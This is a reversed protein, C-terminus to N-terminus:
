RGMVRKLFKVPLYVTRRTASVDRSSDFRVVFRDVWQPARVKLNGVTLSEGYVDVKRTCVRKLSRAIPCSDSQGSQGEEIDNETVRIRVPIYVNTRGPNKFKKAM